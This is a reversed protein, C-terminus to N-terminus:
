NTEGRAAEAVVRTRCQLLGFSRQFRGGAAGLSWGAFGFRDAPLIGRFTGTRASELLVLGDNNDPLTPALSWPYFPSEGSTWHGANMREVSEDPM